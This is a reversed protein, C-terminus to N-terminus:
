RQFRVLPTLGDEGHEALGARQIDVLDGNAQPDAGVGDAVIEVGKRGLPRQLSHATAGGQRVGRVAIEGCGASREMGATREVLLGLLVDRAPGSVQNFVAVRKDQVGAGRCKMKRVNQQAPAVERDHGVTDFHASLQGLVGGMGDHQQTAQQAGIAHGRAVHQAIRDESIQVNLRSKNGTGSERRLVTQGLGVDQICLELAPHDRGGSRDNGQDVGALEAFHSQGGEGPDILDCM